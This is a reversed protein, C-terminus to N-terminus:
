GASRVTLLLLLAVYPKFLKEMAMVQFPPDWYFNEVDMAQEYLAMAEVNRPIQFQSDPAAYKSVIYRTMAGSEFLSFSGDRLSPVM